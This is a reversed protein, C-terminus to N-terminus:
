KIIEILRKCSNEKNYKSLIESYDIKKKWKESEDIFEKISEYISNISIPSFYKIWKDFTAKISKLDSAIIPSNHFMPEALKFPFPEYFSPFITWKAEKYLHYKDIEDVLWLFHVNNQMNTELILNRLNLNSSINHWLFVLDFKYWNDLLRSFVPILKEYNKEISDWWSYIFFDNNISYKTKINVSIENDESLIKFNNSPFFWNLLFIKTEKVDFKEILEEKSNEDFCILRYSKKINKEILFLFKFKEYWSTFNMYYIDKLSWIFTIYQWKYLIPKYQNFFLMLHNKDKKFIKNLKTQEEFSWIKINVNKIIVKKDKYDRNIWNWYIIYEHERETEILEEVLQSIFKSYIDEWIFRLDIWVKM